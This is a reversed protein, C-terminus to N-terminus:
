LLEAVKEPDKLDDWSYQQKAEMGGVVFGLLEARCPLCLDVKDWGGPVGKLYKVEIRFGHAYFLDDGNAVKILEKCKDCEFAKAV